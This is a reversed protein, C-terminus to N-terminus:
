GIEQAVEQAFDEEEVEIGEGVQYRVFRRININEDVEAITENLLDQITRDPDRIYDQELLVQQKLFQKELKGEVIQEKVHDPKDTLEDDEELQQLLINKEVEVDEEPVDARSVYSPNQAAIQMAVEHVFTEFEDTNAVFDTQCNVEVIVGIQGDMHLYTGIKGEATQGSKQQAAELGKTRLYEAAQDLDGETQSLAEKCDLIGAGTRERLKKVDQADVTM